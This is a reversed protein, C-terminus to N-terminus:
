GSTATRGIPVPRLPQRAAEGSPTDGEDGGASLGPAVTSSPRRQDHGLGRQGRGVRAALETRNRAGTKRLVAGVHKEVTKVSIRLEAAIHKDPLGREVLRKVQKERETLVPVGGSGSGARLWDTTSGLLM